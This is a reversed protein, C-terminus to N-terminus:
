QKQKPRPKLQLLIREKIKQRFSRSAANGAQSGDLTLRDSFTDFSGISVNYELNLTFVGTEPNFTSPSYRDTNLYIPGYQPHEYVMVTPAVTLDYNGDERLTGCAIFPSYNEGSPTIRFAHTGNPLMCYGVKTDPLNEEFFASYYTGVGNKLPFPQTYKLNSPLSSTDVLKLNFLLSDYNFEHGGCSRVRM